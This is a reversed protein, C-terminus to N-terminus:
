DRSEKWGTALRRWNFAELSILNGSSFFRAALVIFLYASAALLALSLLIQWLPVPAVALRTVMASPASFPFLSLAVALAGHPEQAFQQGFMLTPMLPLVLVWVVQGGERANPSIAGGAAMVAAYLAYGLVLYLAAWIWFGPPFAFQSLSMWEAGRNLVLLGGGVWIVVQILMVVSMALIKGVMLRKPDLSLLLVEATRNEKEAVVCRLLYSGAMVLLFYFVYPMIAAILLAMAQTGAESEEQPALAHYRVQAGPVPDFLTAVLFEDGTLNSDILLRLIWSPGGDMGVSIGESQSLIQYEQDYVVIQGSAVYDAPISVVQDVEGAKLAARATTEDSYRVWLDEPFASPITQILGAPDVLGLVVPEPAPASAESEAEPTVLAGSNRGEQIITFANLGVLFVPMLFAMLWFSRQQLIARIDHKIVLWMDRM